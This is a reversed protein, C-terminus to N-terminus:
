LAGHRDRFLLRKLRRGDHRRGDNQRLGDHRRPRVPLAAPQGAPQSLAAGTITATAGDYWRKWRPGDHRGRWWAGPVAYLGSFGALGDTVCFYIDINGEERRVEM